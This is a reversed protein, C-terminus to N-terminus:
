LATGRLEVAGDVDGRFIRLTQNEFRRGYTSAHWGFHCKVFSDKPKLVQFSLRVMWTVGFFESRRIRLDIAEPQAM